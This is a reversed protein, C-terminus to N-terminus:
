SLQSLMYIIYIIYNKQSVFVSTPVSHLTNITGYILVYFL